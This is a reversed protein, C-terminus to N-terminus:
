KTLNSITKVFLGFSLAMITLGWDLPQFCNTNIANILIFIIVLGTIVESIWDLLPTLNM